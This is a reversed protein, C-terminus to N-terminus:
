HLPGCEDCPADATPQGNIRGAVWDKLAIGDSSTDYFKDIVTACHEDGPAVYYRYNPTSARITRQSAAMRGTWELPNGGMRVLFLRQIFDDAHNFQAFDIDPYFHAVRQYLDDLRLMRFDVEAPDLDPIWAPAAATYNWLPHARALFDPTLVGAGADGFQAIHADPYQRAVHPAWYISGYSGASCGTVVVDRPTPHNERLWDLVARTNTAGRHRVTFSTGNARQYVVDNDGWHVDGTCYPIVVHTWGRYPNGEHERRYVGQLDHAQERLDDISDSFTASEPSCTSADWCAGGGIFDVVVKESDGPFVFFSYPTGRACSTAGGPQIEVWPADEALAPSVAGAALLMALASEKRM